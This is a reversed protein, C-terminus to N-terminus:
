SRERMLWAATRLLPGDGGVPGTLQVGMPMGAVELLPLTMCQSGAYTWFANFVPDGTWGLGEPAPGASSLCLVADYEAFIEDLGAQVRPRQAVAHRYTAESISRGEAIGDQLVTSMKDGHADLLPGYHLANGYHQLTHQWDWAAGMWDPMEVTKCDAGLDAAFARLAKRADSDAREWM